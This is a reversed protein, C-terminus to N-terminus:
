VHFAALSAQAIFAELAEPALPRSYLYGQFLHCGGEGIMALQAETEVGEAMVEIRLAKGLGAITHVIAKGHRGTDADWIFSRDIKLQELPLRHLYSLSSYGTGFDDLSFGVGLARLREMRAITLEVDKLLLSETLELKLRSAPAGTDALAAMVQEVFDPRHFQQASVNVAMRLGATRPGSAWRALQACATRLVWGGLPIIIGTEETLPIFEAPTVMGRQPHRWRLLAEAGTMQRRLDCQPQYHLEFQGANLAQRLDAELAARAAVRQEMGAEFWTSTNRGAAKSQYMALDARKLVEEVSGSTSDIITVGVSPTSYHLVGDIDFPLDFAHLVKDAVERAHLAAAEGGEGVEELLVVFEDGGFRAVTDSSRVARTLRQGVQQLLMDGKDHGRADNVSKFNDLDIFLVAGCHLTRRFRELARGIRDMLLQRNPLGTLRDYFAMQHFEAEQAKRTSIDLFYIALGEDSPYARVETWLDLPAYYEEFLVSARTAIARHYAQYYPGGVAEPFKEWINMGIVEQRKCQLLREAERNIFTLRWETDLMLFADTINDLTCALRAGLRQADTEEPPPPPDFTM